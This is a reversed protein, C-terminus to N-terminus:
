VVGGKATGDLKTLVIGTVSGARTFEQAQRIANQGTNGDVVLRTEHPAEPLGGPGAACWAGVAENRGSRSSTSRQPGTPIGRRWSWRAGKGRGARPSSESRRPRARAM